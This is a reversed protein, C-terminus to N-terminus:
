ITQLKKRIELVVLCVRLSAARVPIFAASRSLMPHDVDARRSQLSKQSPARGRRRLVFEPLRRCTTFILGGLFRLSVAPYRGGCELPSGKDAFTHGYRWLYSVAPYRGGYEIPAFAKEKKSKRLHTAM